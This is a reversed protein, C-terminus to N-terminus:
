QIFHDVDDDNTTTKPRCCRKEWKQKWIKGGFTITSSSTTTTAASTSSTPTTAPTRNTNHQTAVTIFSFSCCAVKCDRLAVREKERHTQRQKAKEEQKWWVRIWGKLERNVKSQTGVEPWLILPAISMDTTACFIRSSYKSCDFSEVTNLQCIM